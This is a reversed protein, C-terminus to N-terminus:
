DHQRGRAGPRVGREEKARGGENGGERAGERKLSTKVPWFLCVLPFFPEADM